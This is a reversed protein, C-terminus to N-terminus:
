GRQEPCTVVVRGRRGDRRPRNESASTDLDPFDKVLVHDILEQLAGAMEVGTPGGGVIV